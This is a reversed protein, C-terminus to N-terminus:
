KLKEFPVDLIRYKRWEKYDFHWWEGPDVKFGESEMTRRLLDRFKRQRFTGGKYTPSAKETFDDYPSPMTVERGTKLEYLSLDVACGRNHRSGEDPNAVFSRKEPPTEDWFKKTISWPRYGDFVLLGFGYRRLAKHARLLARAAPEQLFARAQTYMPRGMFNNSTAYRIDLKITSDLTRLEILKDPRFKRGHESPPQGIAHNLFVLLLIQLRYLLPWRQAARMM